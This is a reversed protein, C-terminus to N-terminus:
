RENIFRRIENARAQPSFMINAVIYSSQIVRIGLSNNSIAKVISNILVAKIAKAKFDLAQAAVELALDMLVPVQVATQAM